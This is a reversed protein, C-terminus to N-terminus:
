KRLARSFTKITDVTKDPAVGVVIGALCAALITHKPKQHIFTQAHKALLLGMEVGMDGHKPVENPEARGNTTRSTLARICFFSITGALVSALAILFAAHSPKMVLSLEIFAAYLAYLVAIVATFATFAALAGIICLRRLSYTSLQSLM